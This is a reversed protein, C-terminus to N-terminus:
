WTKKVKERRRVRDMILHATRDRRLKLLQEHAKLM